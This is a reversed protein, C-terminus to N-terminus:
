DIDLYERGHRDNRIYFVDGDVVIYEEGTWINFHRTFTRLGIKVFRELVTIKEWVEITLRRKPKPPSKVVVEIVTTEDQQRELLDNFMQIIRAYDKMLFLLQKDSDSFSKQTRAYGYTLVQIYNSEVHYEPRGSSFDVVIADGENLYRLPDCLTYKPKPCFNKRLFDKLQRMVGRETALKKKEIVIVYKNNMFPIKKFKM